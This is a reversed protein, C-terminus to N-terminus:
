LRMKKDTIRVPIRKEAHDEAGAAVAMVLLLAGAIVVLMSVRQVKRDNMGPVTREPGSTSQRRVGPKEEDRQGKVNFWLNHKM